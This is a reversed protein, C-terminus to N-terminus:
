RKPATQQSRALGLSEPIASCLKDRSLNTLRNGIHDFSTTFYLFIITTYPIWEGDFYVGTASWHSALYRTLEWYSVQLWDYQHGCHRKRRYEVYELVSGLYWIPAHCGYNLEVPERNIALCINTCILEFARENAMVCSFYPSLYTGSLTCLM